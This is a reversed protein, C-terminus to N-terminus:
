DWAASPPEEGESEEESEQQAEWHGLAAAQGAELEAVRQRRREMAEAWAEDSMQHDCTGEKSSPNAAQFEDLIKSALVTKKGTKEAEALAQPLTPPCYQHVDPVFYRGPIM